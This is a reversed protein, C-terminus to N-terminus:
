RAKEKVPVVYFEYSTRWKETEGPAMHLRISAEPSYAM